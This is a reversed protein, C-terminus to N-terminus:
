RASDRLERIEAEAQALANRVSELEEKLCLVESEANGKDLEAKELLTQLDANVNERESLQDNLREVDNLADTLAGDLREVLDPISTLAALISDEESTTHRSM